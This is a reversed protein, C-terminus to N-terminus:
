KRPTLPRHAEATTWPFCARRARRAWARYPLPSGLAASVLAAGLGLGLVGACVGLALLKNM